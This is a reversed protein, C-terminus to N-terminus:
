MASMEQNNEGIYLKCKISGTGDHLLYNAVQSSKECSVIGVLM